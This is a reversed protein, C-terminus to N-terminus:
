GSEPARTQGLIWAVAAGIATSGAAALAVRGTLWGASPYPQNEMLPVFGGIVFVLLAFLMTLQARTGRVVMAIPVLPILLALARLGEVAVVGAWRLPDAGAGAGTGNEMPGPPLALLRGWPNAPDLPLRLGFTAAWESLLGSVLSVAVAIGVLLGLRGGWERAPLRRWRHRLNAWGIEGGRPRHIWALLGAIVWVALIDPLPDRGLAYPFALLGLAEALRAAGWAAPPGVGLLLGLALAFATGRSWPVRGLVPRLAMALLLGALFAFMPPSQWYVGEWGTGKALTKTASYALGAVLPPLATQLFSTRPTM